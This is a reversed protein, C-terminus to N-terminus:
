IEEEIVIGEDKLTDKLSHYLSSIIKFKEAENFDSLADIISNTMIILQENSKTQKIINM